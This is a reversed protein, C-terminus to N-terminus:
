AAKNFLSVILQYLSDIRQNITKTEEKVEKISTEMKQELREMKKDSRSYFYFVILAILILQLPNILQIAEIFLDNEM